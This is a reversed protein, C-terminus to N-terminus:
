LWRKFQRNKCRRSSRHTTSRLRAPREPRSSSDEHLRSRVGRLPLRASSCVRDSKMEERPRCTQCTLRSQRLCTHKAQLVDTRQQMEHQRAKEEIEAQALQAELERVRQEGREGASSHAQALQAELEATRREFRSRFRPMPSM